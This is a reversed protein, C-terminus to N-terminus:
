RLTVAGHSGSLATRAAFEVVQGAMTRLQGEIRPDSCVGAQFRVAAGNVAVGLPTPWGRLAHTIDRLAALTSQAGQWGHGVAVCGIARGSLYPRDADSLEELHDLANKVLGSVSGHYAPSALVVGDACRVQEILRDAGACRTRQGPDYLPLGLDPGGLLTVEAGLRQAEALVVGLAQEASSGPRLSGGIGVIRM